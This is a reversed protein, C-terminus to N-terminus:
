NNNLLELSHHGYVTSLLTMWCIKNLIYKFVKNDTNEFALMVQTAAWAQVIIESYTHDLLKGLFLLSDTWTQLSIGSLFSIGSM